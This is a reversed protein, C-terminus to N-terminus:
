FAVSALMSIAIAFALVFSDMRVEGLRPLNAPALQLLASTTASAFLLGLAGGFTSLVFSEIIMQRLLRWRSAGIAARVALERVRSTARALALHAVNACAIL